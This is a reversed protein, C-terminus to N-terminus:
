LLFVSTIRSLMQKRKAEGVTIGGIWGSAGDTLSAFFREAFIVENVNRTKHMSKFVDQRKNEASMM